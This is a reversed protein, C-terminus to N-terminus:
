AIACSMQLMSGACRGALAHARARPAHPAPPSPYGSSDPRRHSRAPSSPPLARARARPGHRRPSAASHAKMASSGAAAPGVSASSLTRSRSAGPAAGRVRCAESSRRRNESCTNHSRGDAVTTIAGTERRADTRSRGRDRSRRAGAGSRRTGGRERGRAPAAPRSSRPEFGSSLHPENRTPQRSTFPTCRGRNLYRLEFPEYGTRNAHHPGPRAALQARRPRCAHARGDGRDGYV